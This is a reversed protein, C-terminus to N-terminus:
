LCFSPLHRGASDSCDRNDSNMIGVKVVAVPIISLKKFTMKNQKDKYLVVDRCM